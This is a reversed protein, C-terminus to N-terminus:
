GDKQHVSPLLATEKWSHGTQQKGQRSNVNAISCLWQSTCHLACRSNPQPQDSRRTTHTVGTLYGHGDSSDSTAQVEHTLVASVHRKVSMRKHQTNEENTNRANELILALAKPEAVKSAAIVTDAKIERVKHVM